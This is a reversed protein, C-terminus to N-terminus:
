KNRQLPRQKVESLLLRDRDDSDINLISGRVRVSVERLLTHNKQWQQVPFTLVGVSQKISLDLM